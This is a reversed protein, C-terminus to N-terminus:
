PYKGYHSWGNNPHSRSPRLLFLALANSIQCGFNCFLMVCFWMSPAEKECLTPGFLWIQYDLDRTM